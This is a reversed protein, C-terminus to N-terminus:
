WGYEFMRGPIAGTFESPAPMSAWAPDPFQSAQSFQPAPGLRMVWSVGANWLDLQPSYRHGPPIAPLPIWGLWNIESDSAGLMGFRYLGHGRNISLPPDPIFQVLLVRELGLDFFELSKRMTATTRSKRALREAMATDGQLTRTVSRGEALTRLKLQRTEVPRTPWLAFAPDGGMGYLAWYWGVKEKERLEHDHWAITREELELLGEHRFAPPLPSLQGTHLNRADASKYSDSGPYRVLLNDVMRSNWAVLAETEFRVQPLWEQRNLDYRLCYWSYKLEGARGPAWVMAEVIQDANIRSEVLQYWPGASGCVVHRVPIPRDDFIHESVPELIGTVPDVRSIQVAGEAPLYTALLRGDPALSLYPPNRPREAVTPGQIKSDPTALEARWVEVRYTHEIDNIRRVWRESKTWLTAIGDATPTWYRHLKWDAEGNGLPHWEVAWEPCGPNWGKPWRGLLADLGACGTTALMVVASILLTIASRPRM